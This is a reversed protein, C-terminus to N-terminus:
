HFAEARQEKAIQSYLSFMRGEIGTMGAYYDDQRIGLTKKMTQHKGNILWVCGTFDGERTHSMCMLVEDRRNSPLDALSRKTIEDMEAKSAAQAVWAETVFAYKSAMVTGIMRKITATAVEQEFNNDWLTEIYMLSVGSQLVFTPQIRGERSFVLEAWAVVHQHFEVLTPDRDITENFILQPKHM